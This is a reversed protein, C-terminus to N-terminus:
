HKVCEEFSKSSHNLFCEKEPLSCRGEKRQPVPEAPIDVESIRRSAAEFVPRFEEPIDGSSGSEKFHALTERADSVTKAFSKCKGCLPEGAHNAIVGSIYNIGRVTQITREGSM